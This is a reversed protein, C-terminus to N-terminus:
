RYKYDLREEELLIAFLVRVTKEPNAPDPSPEMLSPAFYHLKWVVTVGFHNLVGREWFECLERHESERAQEAILEFLEGNTRNIQNLHDKVRHSANWGREFGGDLFATNLIKITEAPNVKLM